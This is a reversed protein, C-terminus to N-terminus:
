TLLTERDAIRLEPCLQDFVTESQGRTLLLGRLTGSELIQVDLNTRCSSENINLCLWAGPFAKM